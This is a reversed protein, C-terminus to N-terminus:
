ADWSPLSNIRVSHLELPRARFSAATRVSAMPSPAPPLAPGVSDRPAAMDEASRTVFGVSDRSAGPLGSRRPLPRLLVTGSDQLM